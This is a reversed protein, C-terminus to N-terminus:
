EEIGDRYTAIWNKWNAALTVRLSVRYCVSDAIACLVPLWAFLVLVLSYMAVDWLHAITNM